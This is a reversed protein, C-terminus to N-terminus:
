KVNANWIKKASEGAIKVLQSKEDYYEIAKNILPMSIMILGIIIVIRVLFM